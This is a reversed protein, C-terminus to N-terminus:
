AGGGAGGGRAFAVVVVTVDDSSEGERRWRKKAEDAIKAAAEEPGDCAAAIVVAEDNSVHEWVGDGRSSSSGITRTSSGRDTSPRNRGARRRGRRRTAWRDRRPSDPCGRAARGCGCRAWRSPNATTTSVTSCRPSADAWRKSARAREGATRHTIEPPLSPRRCSRRRVRTRPRRPLRRGVRHHSPPRSRPVRRGGRRQAARRHGIRHARRRRRRVRARLAASPDERLLARRKPDEVLWGPIRERALRAVHHGHPGHGDLVSFFAGSTTAFDRPHAACADQNPRKTSPEAGARSVSAVVLSVQPPGDDDLNDALLSEAPVVRVKSSDSPRASGRSTRTPLRAGQSPSSPPHRPTPLPTDTLSADTPARSSVRSPAFHDRRPLSPARTTGTSSEPAKEVPTAASVPASAGCGMTDLAADPHDRIRDVHRSLKDPATEDDGRRRFAAM